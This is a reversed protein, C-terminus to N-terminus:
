SGSPYLEEWKELRDLGETLERVLLRAQEPELSFFETAQNSQRRLALYLVHDQASIGAKCSSLRFSGVRGTSPIERTSPDAEQSSNSEEGNSM